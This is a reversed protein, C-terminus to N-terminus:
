KAMNGDMSRVMSDLAASKYYQMCHYLIAKKGRYDVDNDYGGIGDAAKKSLSDIRSIAGDDYLLQDYYVSLSVDNIGVNTGTNAQRMCECLAYQKLLERQGAAKSDNPPAEKGTVHAANCALILLATLTIM